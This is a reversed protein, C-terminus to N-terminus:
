GIMDFVRFIPLYLAVVMAGVLGGMFAIMLPEILSTLAETTSEVERDYFEAVKGLMEEITGTEEGVAIMSVVMEPFVDHESLPASIGEGQRVSEQVARTARAIVVSGTTDAVIDLSQLIPVGSHLLTGFNRSFRAMAVMQFLGGFVPLRLKLPDMINRVAPKHSNKRWWVVAGGIAILIVWGFKKLVDSLFVLIRTPLPLQGGLNAFMNDFVPVIFILMAVAMIIALFFIVVPYTMASKIKGRLRVEAELADAVQMMAQDLFGGAEGARVMNIMLVPFVAPHGDMADSLGSGGEIEKALAKIVRQLEPNGPQNALTTLARMMPLGAAIMTAFQRAFRSLDKTKVKKPGGIRIERQLGVNTPTISLPIAGRNRLTAVVAVESEAEIKGEHVVGNRDKAKFAYQVPAAAANAM